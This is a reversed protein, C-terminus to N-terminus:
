KGRGRKSFWKRPVGTAELHDVCGALTPGTCKAFVNGTGLLEVTWFGVTTATSPYQYRNVRVTPKGIEEGKEFWWQDAAAFPSRELRKGWLTIVKPGASPTKRKAKAV